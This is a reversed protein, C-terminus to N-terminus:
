INIHFGVIVNNLQNLLFCDKEFSLFVSTNKLFSDLQYVFGM